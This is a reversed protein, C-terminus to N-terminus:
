SAHIDRALGKLMTPVLLGGARLAYETAVEALLVARGDAAERPCPTMGCHLHGYTVDDADPDSEFWHPFIPDGVPVLAVGLKKRDDGWRRTNRFASPDDSLPPAHDFFSLSVHRESEEVFASSAVVGGVLHKPAITRVKDM